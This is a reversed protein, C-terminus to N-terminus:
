KVEVKSPSFAQEIFGLKHRSYFEVMDQDGYKDFCAIIKDILEHLDVRTYHLPLSNAIQSLESWMM